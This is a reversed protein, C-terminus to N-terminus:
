VEVRARAEEEAEAQFDAMHMSDIAPLDEASSVGFSRLFEETTGFLIPRGPANLRGLERVLGYEVLKNVSHDSNVGRIHQIEAKTVPQKYAIISLTELQIDSLKPEKPAVELAILDDFFDEKTCMQWADDLRIIRIGHDDTEFRDVLEAMARDFNRRSIKLATMLRASSVAEGTTFLMAELAAVVSEFSRPGEDTPM